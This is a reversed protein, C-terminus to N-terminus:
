VGCHIGVWEPMVWYIGFRLFVMLVVVVLVRGGNQLSSGEEYCKKKEMVMKLLATLFM